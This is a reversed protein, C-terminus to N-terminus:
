VQSSSNSPRIQLTVSQKGALTELPANIELSYLDKLPSSQDVVIAGDYNKPSTDYARKSLGLLVGLFVDIATITGIVEEAYPLGWISALTFYLTGLAPLWYQAINLLLNYAKDNMAFISKAGVSETM